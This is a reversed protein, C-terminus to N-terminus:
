LKRNFIIIFCLPAVKPYLAHEMPGRYVGRSYNRTEAHKEPLPGRTKVMSFDHPRALPMRGLVWKLREPSRLVSDAMACASSTCKNWSHLLHFGRGNPESLRFNRDISNVGTSSFKLYLTPLDFRM